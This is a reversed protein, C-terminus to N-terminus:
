TSVKKKDSWVEKPVPLILNGKSIKRALHFITLPLEDLRTGNERLEESLKELNM